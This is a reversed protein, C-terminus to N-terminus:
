KGTITYKNFSAFHDPQLLVCDATNCEDRPKTSYRQVSREGRSEAGQMKYTRTVRRDPQLLVCDATNCRTYELLEEIPHLIKYRLRRSFWVSVSYNYAIIYSNVWFNNTMSLM